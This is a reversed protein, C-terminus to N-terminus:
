ISKEMGDMYRMDPLLDCSSSGLLVELPHDWFNWVFNLLTQIIESNDQMRSKFGDDM